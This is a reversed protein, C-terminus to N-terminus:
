QPLDHIGVTFEQGSYAKIQPEMQTFAAYQGWSMRSVLLIPKGNLIVNNVRFPWTLFLPDPTVKCEIEFPQYADIKGLGILHGSFKTIEISHISHAPSRDPRISPDVLIFVNEIRAVIDDFMSAMKYKIDERAVVAQALQKLTDLRGRWYREASLDKAVGIGGRYCAILTMAADSSGNLASSTELSLWGDQREADSLYNDRQANLISPLGLVLVVFLLENRRM